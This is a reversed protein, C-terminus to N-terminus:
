SNLNNQFSSYEDTDRLAEAVIADPASYNETNRLIWFRKISEGIRVQMLPPVAGYKRLYSRIKTESIFRTDIGSDRDRVAKIIDKFIVVDKNFPAERSELGDRVWSELPTISEELMERKADTMMPTAHPNFHSIDRTQFFHLVQGSDNQIHEYLADYYDTSERPVCARVIFFRRDKPELRIAYEANSFAIFNVRNVFKDDPDSHMRRASVISDTLFPKLKKYMVSKEFQELENIVVLTSSYLWPTYKESLSDQSPASVNREGHLKMCIDMIVTKGIGQEGTILVCHKVKKGPNQVTYALFDYFHNREADSPILTKVHNLFWDPREAVPEIDTPTWANRDICDGFPLDTPEGPLYKLARYVKIIRNRLAYRSPTDKMAYSAFLSNFAKEDSIEAPDTSGEKMYIHSNAIHYYESLADQFAEKQRQDRIAKEEADKGVENKGHKWANECIPLIVDVPLSESFHKETLRQISEATKIISVDYDKFVAALKYIENNMSGHSVMRGALIQKAKAQALSLKKEPTLPAYNRKPVLGLDDISDLTLPKNIVIFERSKTPPCKLNWPIDIQANEYGEISFCDIQANGKIVENRPHFFYYHRGHATKYWLTNYWLPRQDLDAYLAAAEEPTM